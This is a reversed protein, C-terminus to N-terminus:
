WKGHCEKYRKGSGCPCPAKRSAPAQVSGRTLTAILQEAEGGPHAQAIRQLVMLAEDHRALDIYNRALRMCQISGLIRAATTVLDLRARVFRTAPSEGVVSVIIQAAPRSQAVISQL